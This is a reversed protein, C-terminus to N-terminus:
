LHVKWVQLRVHAGHVNCIQDLSRKQDGLYSEVNDSDEEHRNKLKCQVFDKEAVFELSSYIDEDYQSPCECGFVISPKRKTKHIPHIVEGESEEEEYDESSDDEATEPTEAAESDGAFTDNSKVHLFFRM